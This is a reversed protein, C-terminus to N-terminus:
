VFALDAEERHFVDSIGSIVPHQLIALREEQMQQEMEENTGSMKECTTGTQLLASTLILM